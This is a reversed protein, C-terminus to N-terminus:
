RLIMKDGHIEVSSFKKLFSQGLLSQEGSNLIVADLGQASLPGLEVNDLRVIEGRVVGDAGAGVVDNMGISTPIAASQADNRSLAIVSAGTDVLMHVYTENIRVEAYFHGDPNRQLEIAGDQNTSFKPQNQAKLEAIRVPERDAAQQVNITGRGSSSPSSQTRGLMAGIIGFALIIMVYTRLM